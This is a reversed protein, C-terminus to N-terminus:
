NMYLVGRWAKVIVYLGIKSLPSFGLGAKMVVTCEHRMRGDVQVCCQPQFQFPTLLHAALYLAPTNRGLCTHIVLLGHFACTSPRESWLRVMTIIVATDGTGGWEGLEPHQADYHTLRIKGLETHSVSQKWAHSRSFLLLHTPRM